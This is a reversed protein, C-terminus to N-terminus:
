PAASWVVVPQSERVQHRVAWVGERGEPFTGSQQSPEITDGSVQFTWAASWNVTLTVEFGGQDFVPASSQHYMHAVPSPTYPDTYPRGLGDPGTFPPSPATGDGWDWVYRAPTLQVAAQVFDHHEEPGFPDESTWSDTCTKTADDACPHSSTHEVTETWWEQWPLDQPATEVISAGAYSAPEVWFWTAINVIGRLPNMGVVINPLPIDKFLAAALNHAAVSADVRNTRVNHRGPEDKVTPDAPPTVCVGAAFMWGDGVCPGVVEAFTPAQFEEAVPPGVYTTASNSRPPRPGPGTNTQPTTTLGQNMHFDNQSVRDAATIEISKPTLGVHVNPFPNFFVENSRDNPNAQDGDAHVALPQVLVLALCFALLARALRVLDNM